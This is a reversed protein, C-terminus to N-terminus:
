PHVPLNFVSLLHVQLICRRVGGARCGLVIHLLFYVEAGVKQLVLLCQLSFGLLELVVVPTLPLYLLCIVPTALVM